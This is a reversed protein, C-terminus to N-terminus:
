KKMVDSAEVGKSNSRRKSEWNQIQSKQVAQNSEDINKLYEGKDLMKRMSKPTAPTTPMSAPQVQGGASQQLQPPQSEGLETTGRHFAYRNDGQKVIVTSTGHIGAVEFVGRPDTSGSLVDKSRSGLAKVEADALAKGSAADTVTARVSGERNERVDLKLPSILVLGSAFLNDGRVIALYAGEEKVPLTLIKHKIVYDKGDGLKFAEGAQPAIGALDVRTINSLTKERLYLKLLDVKYLQVAGETINRYDLTLKVEEGPKFITVEPLSVRKEEFWAIAQAADEYVTRVKQYWAIADAPRGQAHYVQATVYRAYDRDKSEGNAVPAAAALAKDFEGQWFYGLAAMYKFSDAIRSTEPWGSPEGVGIDLGEALADGFEFGFRGGWWSFWGQHVAV